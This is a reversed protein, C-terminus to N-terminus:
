VPGLGISPRLAREFCWRIVSAPPTGRPQRSVAALQLSTVWSSGSRSAIGGTHPSRPRGRRRGARCQEVVAALVRSGMAALKRARRISGRLALRSASCPEPSAFLAPWDLACDEPEMLVAPKPDAVLSSGVDV